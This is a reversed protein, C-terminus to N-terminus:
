LMRGILIGTVRELLPFSVDKLLFSPIKKSFGSSQKHKSIENIDTFYQLGSASHTTDM